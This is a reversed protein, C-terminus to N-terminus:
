SASDGWERDLEQSLQGSYKLLASVIEEAGEAHYRASPVAVSLAALVGATRSAVAAGFATVGVYSEGENLGYGRERVASLEKTLDAFTRVRSTQRFPVGDAYLHALIRPELEALMAKGAATVHAPLRRGLDIGIRLPQPSELGDITRADRGSLVMLHVTEGLDTHLSRLFPSALAILRPLRPEFRRGLLEPGPRYKKDEGQLVYGRHALTALLRHATSPASKIARAADHVGAEGRDSILSLLTLARDVAGVLYPDKNQLM